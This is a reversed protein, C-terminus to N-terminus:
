DGSHSGEQRAANWESAANEGWDFEDIKAGRQLIFPGAALTNLTVTVARIVYSTLIIYPALAVTYSISVFLLLPSVGFASTEPFINTDLALLVYSSFVITPLSVYLLRSSLRALERKYYLSKFYERGTAFFKLTDVLDNIAEREDDALSHGYKRKFRRAANLHRSYDYYLGTLLVRFTGFEANSLTEATREADATVWDSFAEAERRFEDDDSKAAINALATTQQNIVHLIARLFEAPRAPSVDSDMFEEIRDRYRLSADIRERQNEIDTIEQSFVISNISVVISVLLIIGSLLTNFMSQVTNTESLLTRMDIPRISSLTLMFVLVSALLFVSVSTRAGRLLFWQSLRESLSLREENEGRPLLENLTRKDNM